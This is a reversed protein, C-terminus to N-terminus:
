LVKELRECIMPEIDDDELSKLNDKQLGFIDDDTLDRLRSTKEDSSNVFSENNKQELFMKERFKGKLLLNYHSGASETLGQARKFEEYDENAYTYFKSGSKGEGKALQSINLDIIEPELEKLIEQLWKNFDIAKWVILAQEYTM